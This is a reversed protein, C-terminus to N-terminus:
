ASHEKAEREAKRLAARYMIEYVTDQVHQPFDSLSIQKKAETQQSQDNSGTSEQM